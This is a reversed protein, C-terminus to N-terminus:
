RRLNQAIIADLKGLDRSDGKWRVAGTGDLLVLTPFFEVGFREMVQGPKQGPEVYLLYNLQHQDAYRTAFARRQPTDTEDCVVGIVELGRAGYRSQLAKLSPLAKKCPLCTTTMFDILVLDDPRGSPFERLRGLTDLLVFDTKPKVTRSETQGPVRPPTAPLVSPVSTNPINAAPPRWDPAPGPTFLDPRPSATKSAPAPVPPTPAPVPLSRPAAPGTPSWASDPNGRNSPNRPPLQDNALPEPAPRTPVSPAPIMAPPPTGTGVPRDTGSAPQTSTGPLAPTNPLQLGEILPLRVYVSPPKAYVQGAMPTGGRNARATLVYTQGQSLGKIQFYGGALTQVGVPAGFGTKGVAQVEIYVDQLKHGDPDVVYGALVGQVENQIDAALGTTGPTPPPRDQGSTTTGAPRDLWHGASAPPPRDKPRSTVGGPAAPDSPPRDKPTREFVKCGTAAVSLGLLLLVTRM